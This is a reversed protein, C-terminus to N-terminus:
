NLMNAGSLSNINRMDSTIQKIKPLSDDINKKIITVLSLKAINPFHFKGSNSM